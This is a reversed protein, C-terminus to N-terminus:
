KVIIEEIIRLNEKVKIEFDFSCITVLFLCQEGKDLKLPLFPLIM